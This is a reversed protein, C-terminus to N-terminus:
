KNFVKEDILETLPQIKKWGLLMLLATGFAGIAFGILGNQGLMWRFLAISALIMIIQLVKRTLWLGKHKLTV